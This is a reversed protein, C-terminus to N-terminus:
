EEEACTDIPAIAHESLQAFKLSYVDCVTYCPPRTESGPDCLCMWAAGVAHLIGERHTVHDTGILFDCAAWCGLNQQLLQQMSGEYGSQSAECGLTGEDEMALMWENTQDM